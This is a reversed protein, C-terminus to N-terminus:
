QGDGTNWEQTDWEQTDWERTDWDNAEPLDFISAVYDSQMDEQLGLGEAGVFGVYFGVALTAALLGAPRLWGKQPWLATLLDELRGIFTQPNIGALSESHPTPASSLINEMLSATVEGAPAQDLVGDLARAQALTAQAAASGEAFALADERHEEPWRSAQGGYADILKEFEELTM